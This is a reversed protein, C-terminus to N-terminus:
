FVPCRRPLHGGGRIVLYKLKGYCIGPHGEASHVRSLSWPRVVYRDPHKPLTSILKCVDEGVDDVRLIMVASLQPVLM